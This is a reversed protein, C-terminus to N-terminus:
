RLVLGYKAAWMARTADHEAKEAPHANLYAARRAQVANMFARMEAVRAQSLTMGSAVLAKIHENRDTYGNVSMGAVSTGGAHTIM